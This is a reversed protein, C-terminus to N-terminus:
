QILSVWRSTYGEFPYPSATFVPRTTHPRMLLNGRTTQSPPIFVERESDVRFRPRLGAEQETPRSKVDRGLGPCYYSSNRWSKRWTREARTVQPFPPSLPAAYLTKTTFGSPLHISSRGLHPHLFLILIPRSSITHYVQVQNIQSLILVPQQSNHVRHHVKLNLLNRTIEQAASSKNAESSHTRSCTTLNAESKRIFSYRM